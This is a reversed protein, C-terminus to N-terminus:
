ALFERAQNADQPIEWNKWGGNDRIYKYKEQNYAPDNINECRSSHQWMRQQMNKTHGIYINTEKLDDKHRLKYISFVM